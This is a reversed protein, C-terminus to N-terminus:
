GVRVITFQEAATLTGAAVVNFVRARIVTGAPLFGTWSATAAENAGGTTQIALVDTYAAAGALNTNTNTIVVSGATNFQDSYSIAYVGDNVITFSGGLTASDTSYIDTGLARVGISWRRVTTNTSGFGNGFRVQIMSRQSPSTDFNDSGRLVTTM